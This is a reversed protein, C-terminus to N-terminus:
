PRPRTPPSSALAAARSRTPLTGGVAAPVVGRPAPCSCVRWPLATVRTRTAPQPHARHVGRTVTGHQSACHWACGRPHQPALVVGVVVCLHLSFTVTYRHLGDERVVCVTCHPGTHTHPSVGRQRARLRRVTSLSPVAVSVALTTPLPPAASCATAGSPATVHCASCACSATRLRSAAMTAGPLLVSHTGFCDRCM